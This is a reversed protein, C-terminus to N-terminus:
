PFVYLSRSVAILQMYLGPHYYFKNPKRCDRTTQYYVGRNIQPNILYKKVTFIIKM